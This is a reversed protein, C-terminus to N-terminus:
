AVPGPGIRKKLKREKGLQILQGKQLEYANGQKDYLTRGKIKSLNKIDVMNGKEDYFVQKVAPKAAPNWKKPGNKAPGKAFAATSGLSFFLTMLVAFIKKLM